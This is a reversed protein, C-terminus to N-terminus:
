RYIAYKNNIQHLSGEYYDFILDISFFTATLSYFLKYKKFNFRKSYRILFPSLGTLKNMCVQQKLPRLTPENGV